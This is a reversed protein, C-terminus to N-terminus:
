CKTKVPELSCQVLHEAGAKRAQKRPIRRKIKATCKAAAEERLRFNDPTSENTEEERRAKTQHAPKRAANETNKRVGALDEISGNKKMVEKKFKLSQEETKPKWKDVKKKKKCFLQPAEEQIRAFIPYHDWTAWLRGEEHIYIEDNGRMPGIIHDLQSIDEERVKVLHRSNGSWSSSVKCDFENM